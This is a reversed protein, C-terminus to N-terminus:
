KAKLAAIVGFILGNLAIASGFLILDTLYWDSVFIRSGFGILAGIMSIIFWTGFAGKKGRMERTAVHGVWLAACLTLVIGAIYAISIIIVGSQINQYATIGHSIVNNAQFPFIEIPSISPDWIFGTITAGLISLAALPAAFMLAWAIYIGGVDGYNIGMCLLGILTILINFGVYVKFGSIFVDRDVWTGM